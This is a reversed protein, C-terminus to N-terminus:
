RSILKSSVILSTRFPNHILAVASLRLRSNKSLIEKGMDSLSHIGVAPNQVHVSLQGTGKMQRDFCIFFLRKGNQFGRKVWLERLLLICWLVCHDAPVLWPVFGGSCNLHM